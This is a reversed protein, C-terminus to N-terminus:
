GGELVDGWGKRYQFEVVLVKVSVSLFNVIEVGLEATINQVSETLMCHM